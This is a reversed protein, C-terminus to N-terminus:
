INLALHECNGRPDRSPTMNQAKDETQSLHFVKQSERWPSVALLSSSHAISLLVRSAELPSLFLSFPPFMLLFFKRM